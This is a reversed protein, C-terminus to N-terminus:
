PTDGGTPLFWLIHGCRSCVYNKAKKNLFDFGFFTTARTNLLTYRITFQNNNCVPCILPNGNIERITPYDDSM